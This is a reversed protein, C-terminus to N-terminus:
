PELSEKLDQTSVKNSMMVDEFRNSSDQDIAHGDMNFNRTTIRLSSTTGLEDIQTSSLNHPVADDEDDNIAQIM